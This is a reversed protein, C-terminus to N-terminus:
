FLDKNRVFRFTAGEATIAQRRSKSFKIENNKITLSPNKIKYLDSPVRWMIFNWLHWHLPIGRRRIKPNLLRVKENRDNQPLQVVFPTCGVYEILQNPTVCTNLVDKPLYIKVISQFYQSLKQEFFSKKHFDNDKIRLLQPEWREDYDTVTLIKNEKLFNAMEIRCVEENNM